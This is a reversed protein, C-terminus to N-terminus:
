SEPDPVEGFDPKFVPPPDSFLEYFRFFILVEIKKIDPRYQVRIPETIMRSDNKVEWVKKVM